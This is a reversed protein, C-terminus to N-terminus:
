KRKEKERTNGNPALQLLLFADGDMWKKDELSLVQTWYNDKAFPHRGKILIPNHASVIVQKNWKSALANLINLLGYCNRPSLAADPEDLLVTGISDREKSIREMLMNLSALNGQGHSAKMAFLQMELMDYHLASMDRPSEREFDFAVIKADKEAEITVLDEVKFQSKISKARYTSDSENFSRDKELASRILEIMTSKGCGQDGVLLNVGSNFDYREGKKFSRFEKKFEISKIMNFNDKTQIPLVPPVRVWLGTFATSKLDVTYAM